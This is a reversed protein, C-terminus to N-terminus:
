GPRNGFIDRVKQVSIKILETGLISSVLSQSSGATFAIGSVNVGVVAAGSIGTGVAVLGDKLKKRSRGTGTLGALHPMLGCTKDKLERLNKLTQEASARHPARRISDLLGICEDLVKDAIEGWGCLWFLERESRLFEEFKENNGLIEQAESFVDSTEIRNTSGGFHALLTEKVNPDDLLRTLTQCGVLAAAALKEKDAEKNAYAQSLLQDMRRAGTVVYSTDFVM